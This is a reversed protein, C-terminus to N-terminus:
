ERGRGEGGGNLRKESNKYFYLSCGGSYQLTFERYLERRKYM